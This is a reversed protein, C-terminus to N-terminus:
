QHSSPLACVAVRQPFSLRVDKGKRGSVDFPDLQLSADSRATEPLQIQVVYYRSLVDELQRVIPPAEKSTFMQPFVIGVSGGTIAALAALYDPASMEEETAFERNIFIFPFARIGKSSYSRELDRQSAKSQNDGGDSFLVVSDGVQTTGFLNTASLLADRLATSGKGESKGARDIASLVEARSHGFEVTELVKEAFVVLAFQPNGPMTRVLESSFVRLAKTNDETGMSASKDLLIVVRPANVQRTVSLVTADKKGLRARFDSSQLPLFRGQKDRANVVLVRKNCDTGQALVFPVSGLLLGLLTMYKLGLM